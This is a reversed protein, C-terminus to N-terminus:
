CVRPLSTLGQHLYSESVTIVINHLGLETDLIADLAIKAANMLKMSDRLVNNAYVSKQHVSM